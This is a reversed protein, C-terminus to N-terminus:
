FFNKKFGPKTTTSIKEDTIIPYGSNDTTQIGTNKLLSSTEESM